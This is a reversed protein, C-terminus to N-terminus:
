PQNISSLWVGMGENLEPNFTTGYDFDGKFATIEPTIGDVKKEMEMLTVNFTVQVDLPM